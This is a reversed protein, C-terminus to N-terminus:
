LYGESVAVVAKFQHNLLYNCTFAFMLESFQM